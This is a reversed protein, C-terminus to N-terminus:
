SKLFNKADDKIKSATEKGFMEIFANLETPNNQDVGLSIMLVTCAEFPSKAMNKKFVQKYMKLMARRINASVAQRSIGIEEGIATGTMPPNANVVYENHEKVRINM